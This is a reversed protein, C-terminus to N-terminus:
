NMLSNAISIVPTQRNLSAGASKKSFIGVVEARVHDKGRVRMTWRETAVKVPVLGSFLVEVEPETFYHTVTGNAREFTQPEVQRGKGSRLEDRAFGSFWLMGNQRLVRTSEIAIRARDEKCMHGIVHFAIVADFTGTSFPLQRADAIAVEGTGTHLALRHSMMAARSSFDIATVALGRSALASFTKGNGCGLELVRSGSGIPPLNHVAGGWLRGRQGYDNDWCSADSNM